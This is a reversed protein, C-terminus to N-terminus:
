NSITKSSSAPSLNQPFPLITKYAEKGPSVQSKSPPTKQRRSKIENLIKKQKLRTEEIILDRDKKNLEETQKKLQQLKEQLENINQIKIALM